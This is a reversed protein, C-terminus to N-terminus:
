KEGVGGWRGMKIKNPLSSAHVLAFFVREWGWACPLLTEPDSMALELTDAVSLVQDRTTLSLLPSLWAARADPHSQLGLFPKPHSLSGLEQGGSKPAATVMFHHLERSLTEQESGVWWTTSLCPCYKIITSSSSNKKKGEHAPPFSRGEPDETKKGM